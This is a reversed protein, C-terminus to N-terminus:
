HSAAPRDGEAHRTMLAIVGGLIIAMVADTIEASRDPLHLEIVSTVFLSAAVLVTSARLRLGSAWLLWIMSGYLFFKEMFSRIGVDISGYMFSRFPMWGFDGGEAQFQFPELRLALIIVGLLIATMVTARRRNASVLPWAGFVIAAGILDPLAVFGNHIVIKATFVFGALPAFVVFFRKQGWIETLLYGITLWMVVYRAIDYPILRHDHLLPQIARWYKHLDITPVYPYLRDGLMAALLLTPFPKAVLAALFPWRLDSSFLLGGLAGLAAGGTNLYIDSFNDVRGRDYFQCLEISTCLVLGFLTVLWFRRWGALRTSMVGFFGLPMYLLINSILDGFSAPPVAWSDILARLAGGDGPPVYFDYPYLSGHIIIGVIVITALVFGSSRPRSKPPRREVAPALDADM